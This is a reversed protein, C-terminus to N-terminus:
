EAKQFEDELEPFWFTTPNEFGAKPFISPGDGMFTDSKNSM